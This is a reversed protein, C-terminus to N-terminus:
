RAATPCKCHPIFQQVKPFKKPEDYNDFVLLWRQKWSELYENVRNILQDETEMGASFTINLAAAVRTYSQIALQESSANVWFIGGYQERFSRRCYELLIQTKGQGGLAHLILIQPENNKLATSLYSSIQCLQDERGVFDKVRMRPVLCHRKYRTGSNDTSPSGSVIGDQGSATSFPKDSSTQYDSPLIGGFRERVEAETRVKREAQESLWNSQIKDPAESAYRQLAETVLDFGPSHENEFQCMHALDQQIVAREVDHVNPAASEEEVLFHLDGNINTPKGEHFFFIHFKNILQIFRRDIVQLTEHNAQLADLIQSQTSTRNHPTATGHHPTGLFLIGHTSVFTSRLHGTKFGRVEASHVLAAKVVLGGLSHAIFIIPRETAKNKRRNGYLVALLQEAHNHIRDKTMIAAGDMSPTVNADYGYVLIRAKEEALIPPLLQAPWFVGDKESTWTSGPHGDLGHVFVVDVLTSGTVPRYVETLGYRKIPEM